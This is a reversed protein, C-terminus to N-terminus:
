VKSSIRFNLVSLRRRIEFKTAISCTASACAGKEKCISLNDLEGKKTFGFLTGDVWSEHSNSGKHSVSEFPSASKREGTLTGTPIGGM